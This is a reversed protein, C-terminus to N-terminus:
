NYQEPRKSKLKNKTQKNLYNIFSFKFDEAIVASKRTTRNVKTKINSTMVKPVYINLISQIIM